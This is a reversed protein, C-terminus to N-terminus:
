GPEGDEAAGVPVLEHPLQHAVDGGALQLHHYYLVINEPDQVV